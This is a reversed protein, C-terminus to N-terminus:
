SEQLKQSHHKLTFTLGSHIKRGITHETYSSPFFNRPPPCSGPLANSPRLAPRQEGGMWWWWEGKERQELHLLGLICRKALLPALVWSLCGRCWGAGRQLLVQFKVVYLECHLFCFLASCPWVQVGAQAPTKTLCLSINIPLTKTEYGSTIINQTTPAFIFTMSGASM